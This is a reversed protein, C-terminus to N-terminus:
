KTFVIFYSERIFLMFLRVCLFLMFLRERNFVIVSSEMVCPIGGWENYCGSKISLFQENYCENTTPDNTTPDNTIAYGVIANVCNCSHLNEFPIFAATAWKLINNWYRRCTGLSGRLIGPLTVSGGFPACFDSGFLMCLVLSKVAVSLFHQLSIVSYSPVSLTGRTASIAPSGSEGSEM